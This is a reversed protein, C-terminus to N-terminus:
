VRNLMTLQLSDILCFLLPGLISGQPVGLNINLSVYRSTKSTVQLQRGELYSKIWLLAQKSFGMEMLKPLLKSPSITDLAKSFDFQLLLTVLKKLM